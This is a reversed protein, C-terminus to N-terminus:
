IGTAPKPPNIRNSSLSRAIWRNLDNIRDIILKLVSGQRYLIIGEPFIQAGNPTLQSFPNM